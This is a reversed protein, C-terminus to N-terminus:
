GGKVVFSQIEVMTGRDDFIWDVKKLFSPSLTVFFVYSETLEKIKGLTARDM